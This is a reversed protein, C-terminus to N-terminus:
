STIQPNHENFVQQRRMIEAKRASFQKVDPHAQYEAQIRAQEAYSTAKSQKALLEALLKRETAYLRTLDLAIAAESYYDKPEVIASM